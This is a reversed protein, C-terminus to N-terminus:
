SSPRATNLTNASSTLRGLLGVSVRALDARRSAYASLFSGVANQFTAKGDRSIQDESWRLFATYSPVQERQLGYQIAGAGAGATPEPRRMQRNVVFQQLNLMLVPQPEGVEHFTVEAPYVPGVFEITDRPPM